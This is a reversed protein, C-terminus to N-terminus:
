QHSTVNALLLAGRSPSATLTSSHKNTLDTNATDPSKTAAPRSVPFIPCGLSVLFQFLSPVRALMCFKLSSAPRWIIGWHVAHLHPSSTAYSWTNQVEVRPSTDAARVPHNLGQLLSGPVWEVLSVPGPVPKCAKYFLFNQTFLIHPKHLLCVSLCVSLSVSGVSCPGDQSAM